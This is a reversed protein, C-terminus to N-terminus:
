RSSFFPHENEVESGLVGLKDGAPDALVVDIALDDAVIDSRVLNAAV